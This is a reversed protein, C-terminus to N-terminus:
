ARLGYSGKALTFETALPSKAYRICIEHYLNVINIAVSRLDDEQLNQTRESTASIEPELREGIEKFTDQLDSWPIPSGILSTLNGLWADRLRERLCGTGIALSIVANHCKELSYEASGM